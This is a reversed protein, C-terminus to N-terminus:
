AQREGALARAGRVDLMLQLLDHAVHHTEHRAILGERPDDAEALYDGPIPTVGIARIREADVM